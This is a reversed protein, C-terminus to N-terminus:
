RSDVTYHRVKVSVTRTEDVSDLIKQDISDVARQSVVVIQWGHLEGTRDCSQGGIV